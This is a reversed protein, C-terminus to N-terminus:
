FFEKLYVRILLWSLVFCCVSIIFFIQYYDVNKHVTYFQPVINENQVIANIIQSLDNANQVEFFSANSIKAIQALAESDYNSELFGSYKKETFPDTFEISVTGRTGIGLVYIPVEQERALKAATLPHISGANNEGDTILIIVKKQAKSSDLHYLACSIGVGLATGEGLYGLQIKSLTKEVSKFDTTPPLVCAATNGITVIGFAAGQSNEVVTKITNKASDIRKSQGLDIAAMSPSTDLVFMIETEHSIYRKEYTTIRPNALAIIACIYAFTVLFFAFGKLVKIKKSKYEFSHGQWDAFILPVSIKQIVKTKYLIYFLPIILLLLLFFYNEFTLM